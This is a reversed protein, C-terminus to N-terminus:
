AAEGSADDSPLQWGSKEAAMGFLAFLALLGIPIGCCVGWQWAKSEAGYREGTVEDEVTSPIYVIMGELPSAPADKARAPEIGLEVHSIGGGTALTTEGEGVAAGLLETLTTASNIGAQLRGLLKGVAEPSAKESVIVTVVVIQHKNAWLRLDNYPFEKARFQLAGSSTSRALVIRTDYEGPEDLEEEEGSYLEGFAELRDKLKQRDDPGFGSLIRTRRKGFRAKQLRRYNQLSLRGKDGARVLFGENVPVVRTSDTKSLARTQWSPSDLNALLVRDKGSPLAKSVDSLLDDELHLDIGRLDTGDAAKVKGRLEKLSSGLDGPKGVLIPADVGKTFFKLSDGEKAVYVLARGKSVKASQLCKGATRAAAWGKSVRYAKTIAMAGAGAKAAAAAARGAKGAKSGAQIAKGIWSLPIAAAPSAVALVSLGVIPLIRRSM